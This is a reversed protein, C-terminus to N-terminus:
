SPQIGREKLREILMDNFYAIRQGALEKSVGNKIAGEIASLGTEDLLARVVDWDEDSMIKM